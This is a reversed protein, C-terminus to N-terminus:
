NRLSQYYEDILSKYFPQLAPSTRKLVEIENKRKQLYEALAPPIEKEKMEKATEAKRKESMKQQREAKEAELLRTIIDEQRRLMEATLQKNVLNTEMKEMQDIIDQVSQQGLGQERMSENHKELMKKLKAQERAMKAFDESSMGEEGQEMKGQNEEAMKKMQENLEGQGETIKDMPVNGNDGDNPNSMGPNECMQDGQMQQAMDMQMQEMTESLMVALDNVSKMIRQQNNGASSIKREELHGLGEVMNVNIDNVKEMIYPELQFVRKSLARLSDEIVTFDEKVKFQQQVNEVYRPTHIDISRFDIILDEQDFSVTILNELLQRLSKLDEQMQMASGGAMDSDMQQSMQQMKDSADQMKDSAKNNDQNELSEQSQNLDDQINHMDKEPNGLNKPKNLQKNRELIEEMKEKFDQFEEALKEQEEKLEEQSEGDMADSDKTKESLEKEKEALENLKDMQQQLDREVQLTKVLEKLRDLDMDQESQRNQMDDMMELSKDKDLEQMLDRLKEMLEELESKQDAKDFLEELMEQKKKMDEDVDDFEKQNEMNEKFKEKAEEIQKQIEEQLKMLDELAKKDQWNVDQESLIKNKLKEIEERLKENKEYAQMLNAIIEEQNEDEKQQYEEVTPKSITMITSRTSKPGNVADNDFVEYYFNLQEGAKLQIEEIHFIDEFDIELGRQIDVARSETAGKKGEADIIYYKFNLASIGYDDRADGVFYIPKNLTSDSFKEVNIIPYNDQITSINYSVSDANILNNGSVYFKLQEHTLARTDSRFEGRVNTKEASIITDLVESRTYTMEDTNQTNFVWKLRTGVPVFIDGTNKIIEDRKGLYQPYSLEITFSEISPKGIVKVNYVRSKVDGSVFQITKDSQINKIQHHFEDPSNKRMVYAYDNILVQVEEPLYEGDVAIDLDLDSFQVVELNKQKLNFHFPAPKEYIRNNHVLRDTSETIINPAAIILLLLIVLPPLAYKLYKRNQKLDIAKPFNVVQLNGTKQEISALLLSNDVDIDAQEKLQLVNLLKDQVEPFHNGIITAAQANSIRSGINFYKLLPIGMWLFATGISVAIFGYFLFKRTGSDFWFEHELLSIALYSLLVLGVWLLTGRLFKNLYYKKIFANLKNLLNIYTNSQSM